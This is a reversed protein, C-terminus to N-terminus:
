NKGELLQPSVVEGALRRFTFSSPLTAHIGDWDAVGFTAPNTGSLRSLQPVKHKEM